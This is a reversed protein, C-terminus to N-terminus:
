RIRRFMMIQRYIGGREEVLLVPQCKIEVHDLGKEQIKVVFFFPKTPLFDPGGRLERLALGNRSINSIRASGHSASKRSFYQVEFQCNLNVPKRSDTRRNM